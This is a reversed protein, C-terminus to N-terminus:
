FGGILEDLKGDIFDENLSADHKANTIIIIYLLDDKLIALVKDNTGKIDGYYRDNVLPLFKTLHGIRKSASKCKFRVKRRRNEQTYDETTLILKIHGKHPGRLLNSNDILSYDAGSKEIMLYELHLVGNPYQKNKSCQFKYCSAAIQTEVM